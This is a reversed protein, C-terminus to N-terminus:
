FLHKVPHTRRSETSLALHVCFVSMSLPTMYSQGHTQSVLFNSVLRLFLGFNACSNDLEARQEASVSNFSQPLQTGFRINVKYFVVKNGYEWIGM